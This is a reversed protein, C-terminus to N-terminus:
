SCFIKDKPKKFPTTWRASIFYRGLQAEGAHRDPLMEHRQLTVVQYLHPFEAPAGASGGAHIVKRRLAIGGERATDISQGPADELLYGQQLRVIHRLSQGAFLHGKKQAPVGLPHCGRVQLFQLTAIGLVTGPPCHLDEPRHASKYVHLFARLAHGDMVKIAGVALHGPQPWLYAGPVGAEEAEKQSAFNAPLTTM